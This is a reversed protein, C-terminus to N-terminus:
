HLCFYLTDHVIMCFFLSVLVTFICVVFVVLLYICYLLGLPIMFMALRLCFRKFVFCFVSCMPSRSLLSFHKYM